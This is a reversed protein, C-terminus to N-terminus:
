AVEINLKAAQKRMNILAYRVRGLATNISIGLTNAIDKFSLDYYYRMIVIEKQKEPLNNILVKLDSNNQLSILETERNDTVSTNSTNFIDTHEDEYVMKHKVEKRFYDLVLNHALCMVWASFKGDEVYKGNHLKEIVRMFVDQLMDNALERNKVLHFIHTYVKSEYKNLLTDFANNDGGLYLRVLQEDAISKFNNM